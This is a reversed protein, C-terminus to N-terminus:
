SEATLRHSRDALFTRETWIKGAEPRQRLAIGFRETLKRREIIEGVWRLVRVRESDFVDPVHTKSCERFELPTIRLIRDGYCSTDPSIFKFSIPLYQNTQSLRAPMLVPIKQEDELTEVLREGPALDFHRHLRTLTFAKAQPLKRVRRVVELVLAQEANKDEVIEDIHPLAKYTSLYYADGSAVEVPHLGSGRIEALDFM